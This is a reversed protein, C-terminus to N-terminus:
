FPLMRVDEISEKNEDTREVIREDCVDATNSELNNCDPIADEEKLLEKRESEVRITEGSVTADFRAKSSGGFNGNLPVDTAATNHLSAAFLNSLGFLSNPYFPFAPRPYGIFSGGPSGLPSAPSANPRVESDNSSLQGRTPITDASFATGECFRKHKSLSTVTSFAQGCKNCKIQLRCTVHM